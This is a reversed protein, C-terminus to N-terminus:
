DLTVKFVADPQFPAPLISSLNVSLVKAKEPITGTQSLAFNPVDSGARELELIFKGEAPYSARQSDFLIAYSGGSYGNLRVEIVEKGGNTLQWGPLLQARLGSAGFVDTNVANTNAEDFGLNVFLAASCKTCLAIALIMIRAIKM